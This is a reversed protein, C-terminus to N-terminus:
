PLFISSFLSDISKISSFNFLLNLLSKNLTYGSLLETKKHKFPNKSTYGSLTKVTKEIEITLSFLEQTSVPADGSNLIERLM